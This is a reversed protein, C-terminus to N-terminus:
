MAIARHRVGGGIATASGIALFTSGTKQNNYVSTAWSQDRVGIQVEAEDILGTYINTGASERGIWVQVGDAVSGGPTTTNELVGNVYIKFASSGDYTGLIHFWSGTDVTTTGIARGGGGGAEGVQAQVFIKISPEGANTSNGTKLIYGVGAFTSNIWASLTFGGTYTQTTGTAQAYNSATTSISGGIQGASATASHNTLTLAHSTSDGLGLTSGDGFHYVASFNSNWTNAADSQDTTIAADGYALYIVTDVSHSLTPIKIWYELGAGTNAWQVTEWKLKVTLAADSYFGIDFGSANLSNGGNAVTALYSLTGSVLVPINTSDASGCQTHDITITRRFAFSAFAPSAACLLVLCLLRRM